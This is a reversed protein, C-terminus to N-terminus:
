FQSFIELFSERNFGKPIDWVEDSFSSPRIQKNVADIYCSSQGEASCLMYESVGAQLLQTRWDRALVSDVGVPKGLSKALTIWDPPVPEPVFSNGRGVTKFGLLTIQDVFGMKSAILMIDRTTEWPVSGLIHQAVIKTRNSYHRSCEPLVNIANNIPALKAVDEVAHCSFAIADTNEIISPFTKMEYLKFNRTTFSVKFSKSQYEKLMRTFRYYNCDKDLSTPEGGGFVVEFVNSDALVDRLTACVFYPDAHTGNEKSDAYCFACNEECKNTISIDVLYPFESKAITDENLTFM